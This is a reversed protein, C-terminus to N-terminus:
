QNNWQQHVLKRLHNLCKYKRTKVADTSSYGLKEAIEDTSCRDFYFLTLLKRCSETLNEMQQEVWTWREEDEGTSSDDKVEHHEMETLPLRGDKRKKELWKFKAIGIIYNGLNEVSVSGDKRIREYLSTIAEQFVDDIEFSQAGNKALYRQVPQYFHRYCAAVAQNILEDEGSSLGELISDQVNRNEM